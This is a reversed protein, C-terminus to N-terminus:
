GFARALGCEYGELAEAQFQGIGARNEVITSFYENTPIDGFHVSFITWGKVKFHINKPLGLTERLSEVEEM